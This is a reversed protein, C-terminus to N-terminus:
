IKLLSHLIFILNVFIVDNNSVKISTHLINATIGVSTDATFSSKADTLEFLPVLTPSSAAILSKIYVTLSSPVAVIVLYLPLSAKSTIGFSISPCVTVAIPLAANKSQVLRVLMSIGSLTVSIPPYANLPQVLRALM